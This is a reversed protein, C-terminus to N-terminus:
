IYSYLDNYILYSLEEVSSRCFLAVRFYFYRKNVVSIDVLLKYHEFSLQNLAKVYIPFCCYFKKMYNVNGVSFVNTMGYYYTLYNSYKLIVNECLKQKNYVCKGIYWFLFLRKKFLM